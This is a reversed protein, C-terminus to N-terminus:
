NLEFSPRTVNPDDKTKGHPIACIIKGFAEALEDTGKTFLGHTVFLDLEVGEPAVGALGLFTGGGDCIDDVVIYKGPKVDPFQFGTLKGTEVDRIKTAYYAPVGLHFSWDEARLEAGKDPAIVGDYQDVFQEFDVFCLDTANIILDLTAESHADTVIVNSFGRGNIEKAVSKLTFLFDGEDNLRDQRGGPVYPLVLDDVVIGREALADVLFLAAQLEGPLTTHVIIMEYASAAPRWKTYFTGDPYTDFPVEELVGNSVVSISM